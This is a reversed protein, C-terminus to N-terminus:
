LHDRNADGERVRPLNPRDQDADAKFLVFGAGAPPKFVFRKIINRPDFPEFYDPVVAGDEPGKLLFGLGAACGALLWREQLVGWICLTICWALPLDPLAMRAMAFYGYCTAVIAGALWATRNDGTIKRAASWTLLVL